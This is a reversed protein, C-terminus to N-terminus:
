LDGPPALKGRWNYRSEADWVNPIPRGGGVALEYDFDVSLDQAVPLVIERWIEEGPDGRRKRSYCRHPQILRVPAGSERAKLILVRLGQRGTSITFDDFTSHRRTRKSKMGPYLGEMCWGFMKRNATNGHYTYWSLSNNFLIDGNILCVVHYPVKWFREHLAMRKAVRDRHMATFGMPLALLRCDEDSIQLDQIRRAWVAVRKKSVGFAVATQHICIGIRSKLKVQIGKKGKYPKYEDGRYNFGRVNDFYSPMFPRDHETRVVDVPQPVGPSRTPWNKERPIFEGFRAGELLRRLLLNM